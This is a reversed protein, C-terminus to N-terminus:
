CGDLLTEAIVLSNAADTADAAGRATRARGSCHLLSAATEGFAQELARGSM